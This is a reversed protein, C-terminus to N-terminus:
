LKRGKKDNTEIDSTSGIGGVRSNLSEDDDTLLYKVFVGQAISSGKEFKKDESGTNELCILIHGDNKENSYYDSDVLGVQNALKIGHKIGCSSRIIILLTEDAQMKVKIGTPLVVKQGSKLLLDRILKFDYGSSLSTARCPKQFTEYEERDYYKLFEEIKVKEFRRM